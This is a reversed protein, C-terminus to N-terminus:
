AISTEEHVFTKVVKQGSVTEEIFGNLEGLHKQQGSFHKRTTKAIQKTILVVLPITVFAVLTLWVNLYFMVALSGVLTIISNLLQTVSQNLVHSVTEVDNTTRSMLEGHTKS